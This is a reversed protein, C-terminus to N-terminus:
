PHAWYDKNQNTQVDNKVKYLYVFSNNSFFSLGLVNLALEVIKRHTKRFIKKRIYYNKKTQILNKMNTIYQM